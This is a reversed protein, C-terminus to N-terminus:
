GDRGAQEVTAVEALRLCSELRGILGAAQSVSLVEISDPRRWYDHGDCSAVAVHIQDDYLVVSVDGIHMVKELTSEMEHYSDCSNLDIFAEGM